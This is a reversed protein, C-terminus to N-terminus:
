DGKDHRVGRDHRVLRKRTKGSCERDGCGCVAPGLVPVLVGDARVEHRFTLHVPFHPPEVRRPRGWPKLRLRM